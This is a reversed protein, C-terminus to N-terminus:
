LWGWFLTCSVAWYSKGLAPQSTVTRLVPFFNTQPQNGQFTTPTASSSRKDGHLDQLLPLFLFFCNISGVTSHITIRWIPTPPLPLAATDEGWCHLLSHSQEKLPNWEHGLSSFLCFGSGRNPIHLQEFISMCVKIWSARTQYNDQSKAMRNQFDRM